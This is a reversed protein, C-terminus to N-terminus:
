PHQAEHNFRKHNAADFTKLVTGEEDATMFFLGQVTKRM